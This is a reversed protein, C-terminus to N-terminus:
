HRGIVMPGQKVGHIPVKRTSGGLCKGHVGEMPIRPVEDGLDGRVEDLDKRLGLVPDQVRKTAAPGGADLSNAQSAIRVLAINAGCGDVHSLPLHSGSKFRVRAEKHIQRAAQDPIQCWRCTVGARDLAMVRLQAM